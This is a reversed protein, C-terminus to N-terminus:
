LGLEPARGRLMRGCRPCHLDGEEALAYEFSRGCECHAELGPNGCGICFDDEEDYARFRGCVACRKTVIM